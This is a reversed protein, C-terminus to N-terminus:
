LRGWNSSLDVDEQGPPTESIGPAAHRDKWKGELLGVPEISPGDRHLGGLALNKADHLSSKSRRYNVAQSCQTQLPSFNIGHHDWGPSELM